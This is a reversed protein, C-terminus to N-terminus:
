LCLSSSFNDATLDIKIFRTLRVRGSTAFATRSSDFITSQTVGDAILSSLRTILYTNSV